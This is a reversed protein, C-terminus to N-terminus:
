WPTEHMACSVNPAQSGVQLLQSQPCLSLCSKYRYHVHARKLLDDLSAKGVIGQGSLQVAAESLPHTAALRTSALRQAEADMRSKKEQVTALRKGPDPSLATSLAAQPGRDDKSVLM